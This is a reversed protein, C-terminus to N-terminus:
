ASAKRLGIYQLIAFVTVIDAIFAIAWKGSTTLSVLNTFILVASGIIWLIDLDIVLWVLLRQVSETNAVKVLFPAYLLLVIGLVFLLTPNKIGLFNALPNSGLVFTIGSLGSFIANGLLARRLFTLNSINNKELYTTQTSM